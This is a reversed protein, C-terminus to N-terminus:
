IYINPKNPLEDVAGPTSSSPYARAAALCNACRKEQESYKKGYESKEGEETEKDSYKMRVTRMRCIHFECSEHM